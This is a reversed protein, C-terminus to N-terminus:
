AARTGGPGASHRPTALRTTAWGAGPASLLQASPLARAGEGGGRWAPRLRLVRASGALNWLSPSSLALTSPVRSGLAGAEKPSFNNKASFNFPTVKPLPTTVPARTGRALEGKLFDTPSNGAESGVGTAELSPQPRRLRKAAELALVVHCTRTLPSSQSPKDM